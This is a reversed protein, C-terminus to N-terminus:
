GTIKGAIKEALATIHDVNTSKDKKYKASLGIFVNDKLFLLNYTIGDDQKKRFLISSEGTLGTKIARGYGNNKFYDADAHYAKEAGQRSNYTTIVQIIVDKKDKLFTSFCGEEFGWNKLEDTTAYNFCLDPETGLTCVNEYISETSEGAEVRTLAIDISRKAM